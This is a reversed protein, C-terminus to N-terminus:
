NQESVIYLKTHTKPDVIFLKGKDDVQYSLTTATPSFFHDWVPKVGGFLSVVVLLAWIALKIRSNNDQIIKTQASFQKSITSEDNTIDLQKDVIAKQVVKDVFDNKIFTSMDDMDKQIDKLPELNTNIKELLLVLKNNSEILANVDGITIPIQNANTTSM